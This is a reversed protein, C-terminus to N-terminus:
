QVGNGDLFNWYGDQPQLWLKAGYKRVAILCGWFCFTSNSPYIMNAKCLKIFDDKPGMDSEIRLSKYLSRVYHPDNTICRLDSGILNIFKNVNKEKLRDDLRFDGGRIHLIAGSSRSCSPVVQEHVVEAVTNLSDRSTASSSQFYGIQVSRSSSSNLTRLRAARNQGIFRLLECYVVARTKISPSACELGISKSLSTLDMWIQHKTWGMIRRTFFDLLWFDELQVIFATYGNRKFDLARAIQFLRNGVGGFLLVITVKNKM